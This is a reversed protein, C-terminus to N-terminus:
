LLESQNKVTRDTLASANIMPIVLFAISFISIVQVFKKIM